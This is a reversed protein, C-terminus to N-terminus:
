YKMSSSIKGNPYYYLCKGNRRGHTYNEEEKITGDEYWATHKGDIWDDKIPFEVSKNGNDYYTMSSTQASNTETSATDIQAFCFGGLLFLTLTVSIWNRNLM